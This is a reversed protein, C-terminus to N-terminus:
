RTIVYYEKAILAMLVAKGVERLLSEDFEQPDNFTITLGSLPPGTVGWSQLVEATIVLKGDAVDGVFVQGDERIPIGIPM